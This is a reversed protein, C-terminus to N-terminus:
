SGLKKVFDLISEEGARRGAWKEAAFTAVQSYRCYQIWYMIGLVLSFFLISVLMIWDAIPFEMVGMSVVGGLWSLSFLLPFWNAFGKLVVQNNNFDFFLLGRM